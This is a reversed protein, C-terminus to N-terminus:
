QAGTTDASMSTTDAPAVVEEPATESELTTTTDTTGESSTSRSDCATFSLTSFVFLAAFLVKKM